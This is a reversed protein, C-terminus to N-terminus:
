QTQSLVTKNTLSPINDTVETHFSVEYVGDGGWSWNSQRINYLHKKNSLSKNKIGSDRM